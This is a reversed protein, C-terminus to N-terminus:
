KKVKKYLKKKKKYSKKIISPTGKTLWGWPSLQGSPPSKKGEGGGHPHDCPNMAVGRVIPRKGLARNEGAKTLCIYKHLMNSVNGLTAICYKSLLINWGSKLKIMIKNKLKNTSVAGTGAARSISGGSYPYKEINSSIDFLCMDKLIISSSNLYKYKNKLFLYKKKKKIGSYILSGIKSKESIIIYSFLGNVYIIGGIFATRYSTKIIKYLYGFNNIRRYFDIYIYQNKIGSYKHHVCIKGSFNRGSKPRIGISLKKDFISFIYKLYNSM